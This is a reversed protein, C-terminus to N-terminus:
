FNKIADMRSESTSKPKKGNNITNKFWENKFGSWSNIVCIKIIENAEKGSKEIERIIANLAIKSNTAKKTKRVKLWDDIVDKEVGLESLSKRFSFKIPVPQEDSSGVSDVQEISKSKSKSKSKDADNQLALANDQMAKANNKSWRKNAANRRKDSTKLIIEMQEDLFSIRINDGEVAVIKKKLMINLHDEDVEIEADEVSLECEKNWYLCCLNIFMGRTDLPCKQIKGMMWDSPSFKFWTLKDM